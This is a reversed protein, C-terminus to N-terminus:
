GRGENKHRASRTKSAGAGSQGGKIRGRVHTRGRGGSELETCLLTDLVQSCPRDVQEVRLVDVRGVEEYEEVPDM